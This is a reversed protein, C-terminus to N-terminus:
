CLNQRMKVVIDSTIDHYGSLTTEEKKLFSKEEEASSCLSVEFGRSEAESQPQSLM